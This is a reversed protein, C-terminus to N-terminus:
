VCYCIPTNCQNCDVTGSCIFDGNSCFGGGMTVCLKQTSPSECKPTKPFLAVADSDTQATEVPVALVMSLQLLCCVMFSM